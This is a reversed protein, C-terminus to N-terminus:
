EVNFFTGSLADIVYQAEILENNIIFQGDNNPIFTFETNGDLPSGMAKLRAIAAQNLDPQSIALELLLSEEKWSVDVRGKLGVADSSLVRDSNVFLLIPM